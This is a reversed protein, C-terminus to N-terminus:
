LDIIAVGCLLPDRYEDSNTKHFNCQFTRSEEFREAMHMTHNLPAVCNRYQGIHQNLGFAAFEREFGGIKVEFNGARNRCIHNLGTGGGHRRM